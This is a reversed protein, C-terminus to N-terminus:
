GCGEKGGGMLGVVVVMRGLGGVCGGGVLGVHGVVVGVGRDVGHGVGAGPLGSKVAALAPAGLLVLM